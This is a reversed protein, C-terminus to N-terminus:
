QPMLPLIIHSPRERDHFVQQVATELLADHGFRHGTNPNRDYLPFNSSSIELRIRHGAKFVNSTAGLDITYEYVQGPEILSQKECSKRYRARIIGDALNYAKGNPWVDVLKATFDTDSASSAAFLKVQLPGTVEVDKELVATSYVLVDPRKEIERQDFAGATATTTLVKGGKTPVPDRPDYLYTDFEEEGPPM